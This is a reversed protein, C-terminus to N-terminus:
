LIYVNCATDRFLKTNLALVVLESCSCYMECFKQGAIQSTRKEIECSQKSSPFKM